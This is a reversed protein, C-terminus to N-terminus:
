SEIVAELHLYSGGLLTEVVHSRKLFYNADHAQTMGIGGHVQINARANDIAARNALFAASSVQFVADPMREQLSLSGYCLQNWAQECRLAMDVCMHSIAQFSGIPRGFQERLGAYAVAMDRTAEANGVQLAALLVSARGFLNERSVPVFAVAAEATLDAHHLSLQREICPTRQLMAKSLDILLAGDADVLVAYRAGEGGTVQVRGSRAVSGASEESAATALAVAAMGQLIDRVIERSGNLAAIRAGLFGGAIWLPAVHRGAERMMLMEDTLSGGSGGMSEDLAFGFWGLAAVNKLHAGPTDLSDYSFRQYRSVPLKEKLYVSVAEVTELQEASPLLDM